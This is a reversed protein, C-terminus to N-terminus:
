PNISVAQQKTNNSPNSDTGGDTTHTITLTLIPDPDAAELYSVTCTSVIVSDRPQVNPVTGSCGAGLTVPESSGVAYGINETVDGFNKVKIKVPFPGPGERSLTVHGDTHFGGGAVGVDHDVGSSVAAVQWDPVGDFAPSGSVAIQLTGDAKMTYVENDGDRNTDFAIELGDPSWAPFDNSSREGFINFGSTITLQTRGGADGAANMVFIQRNRGGSDFTSYAIKTGDPSWNPRLGGQTTLQRLNTGDPNMAWIDEGLSSSRDFAITSGDPSWAPRGLTLIDSYVVTKGTGDANIVCIAQVGGCLYAIRTGDPAWSPSLAIDTVKTPSGGSATMVWLDLQSGSCFQRNSVFAITSGDPSWAPHADLCLNNTLNTQGTGDPNMSYIEWNQDRLTQFAIKGTSGPFAAGALDAKAGALALFAATAVAALALSFPKTVPPRAPVRHGLHQRM